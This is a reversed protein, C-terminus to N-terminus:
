REKETQTRVSVAYLLLIADADVLRWRLEKLRRPAGFSREWLDLRLVEYSPDVVVRVAPRTVPGRPRPTWWRCVENARLVEIGHRLPVREAGDDFVFEYEAAPAGFERAPEADRHHVSYITSAPYGGRLAVHGLVALAQVTRGVPIVVEACGAGLLLPTRGCRFEVGDVMLRGFRPMARPEVPQPYGRRMAEVAEGAVRMDGEVNELALPAWAEERRPAQCLVEVRPARALPERGMGFCMTSLTQLDPKPRGAADTLGEITWGEIAAPGPRSHEEYDAWAWFSCGAVRLAEGERSHVVWTDCLDKLVRANGQGLCGGWETFVLPRDTFAKMRERYDGPWYSYVNIGYFTMDAAAVMARVEDHRGSCDAMGLRCGPDLARCVAATRVAYDVNPNCENYILYAFVSPVNRDRKVTRRLAEVAPAAIAANGLDHFCTGPEESVLLGLEAAIRCVCAAHPSHVLRVYNFGAQKIMGLERRVEAESPSYGSGDTFEHRCVGKLLLRRGNLYFDQGRAEIHRFGVQEALAEAPEGRLVATLTYLYPMEPSWPRPWQVTFEAPAQATAVGSGVVRGSEREALVVDVAGAGGNLEVSVTCAASSFDPAPEARFAMDELFTAPRREIWIPRVLGADFRRGPTPGFAETLDRVRARIVNRAKLLRAPLEFRYTAWPGATGVERGNISFSATALVGETVLFARGGAGSWACEFERELVCEGLPAYSGPVDVFDIDRGGVSRVWQGALDIRNEAM